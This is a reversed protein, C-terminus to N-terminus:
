KTGTQHWSKIFKQRNKTLRNLFLRLNTVDVVMMKNLVYGFYKWIQYGCSKPKPLFTLKVFVNKTGPLKVTSTFALIIM